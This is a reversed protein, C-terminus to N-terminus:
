IGPQMSILNAACVGAVCCACSSISATRTTGTITSHSLTLISWVPLWSRKPRSVIFLNSIIRMNKNCYKSLSMEVLRLNIPKNLILGVTGNEETHECVLVVTRRFNEDFMFPESLLLQGAKIEKEKEFEYSWIKENEDM